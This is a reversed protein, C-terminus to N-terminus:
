AQLLSYCTTEPPSSCRPRISWRHGRMGNWRLAEYVRPTAAVPSTRRNGLDRIIDRLRDIEQSTSRALDMKSEAIQALKGEAENRIDELDQVASSQLDDLKQQLEEVESSRQGDLRKQNEESEQLAREKVQTLSHTADEAAKKACEFDIKLAELNKCSMKFLASQVKRNHSSSKYKQKLAAIERNADHLTRHLSEAEKRTIAEKNRSHHVKEMLEDRELSLSKVQKRLMECTKSGNSKLQATLAAIEHKLLDNEQKLGELRLDTKWYALGADPAQSSTERVIGATKGVTRRRENTLDKNNGRPPRSSSSSFEYSCSQRKLQSSEPSTKPASNQRFTKPQRPARRKPKAPSGEPASNTKSRFASNTKSSLEMLPMVGKETVKELRRGTHLGPWTKEKVIGSMTRGLLDEYL